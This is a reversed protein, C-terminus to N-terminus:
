KFCSPVIGLTLSLNFIDTFVPALQDACAKLVRGCIGDPGAAKRTNVRKFVSRVDSETIILPCQGRTPEACAGNATGIAGNANNTGASNANTTSSAATRRVGYAVSKYEDMNGSIIGVNYAATRSNLAKRITKDVWPKQNPFTKITARPITDDVLKGIFGVVTEMYNSVDDSSHWFMDWDADDLTVQLAAVLQDTWWNSPEAMVRHLLPPQLGSHGEPGKDQGPPRPAQQGSVPCQSGPHKTLSSPTGSGEAQEQRQSAKRSAKEEHRTRQEGEPDGDALKPGPNSVAQPSLVMKCRVNVRVNNLEVSQRIEEIKKLRNQIMQQVEAQTNGLQTKKEGSETEIPVTTHTKHDGETCFQCVCTQDDRCFLELPREHKQCIYDELNEVPDILHHKKLKTVREHSELHTECYSTVCILCSKLAADRSGFCIDCLVLSKVTKQPSSTSKIQVSKKFKAALASIFTNVRLEPRKSFEEKCVPCQCLSSSDWCEKLCVMCFNHGCPTSVPDTFVDLCISCQLEDESLVSSSSAM